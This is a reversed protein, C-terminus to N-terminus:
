QLVPAEYLLSPASLTPTNFCRVEKGYRFKVEVSGAGSPAYMYPRRTIKEVRETMYMHQRKLWMGLKKIREREVRKRRITKPRGRAARRNEPPWGLATRCDNEDERRLVNGM